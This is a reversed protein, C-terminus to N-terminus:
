ETGEVWAIAKKLEGGRYMTPSERDDGDIVKTVWLNGSERDFEISGRYVGDPSTYKWLNSETSTDDTWGTRDIFKEWRGSDGSVVFRETLEMM